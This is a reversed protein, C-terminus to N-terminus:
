RYWVLFAFFTAVVKYFMTVYVNYRDLNPHKGVLTILEAWSLVLVFASLKRNLPDNVPDPRFLLISIIIIM